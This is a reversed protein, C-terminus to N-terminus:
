QMQGSLRYLWATATNLDTIAQIKKLDYDILQQRVRLLDSLQSVAGSYSRIMIDLSRQALQGQNQYLGARRRADQYLQWAEYFESELNNATSEYAQVSAAKLATAENQMSRYKKRWVPITVKVMPMIMDKGNMDAPLESMENANIVSYNLGVGVMPMGMRRNMEKRADLSLQEYKFMELSPNQELISDRIISPDVRLSDAYMTDPLAVPSLAPRNLLANFRAQFTRQQDKLLAISNELEGAEIQIRYLDALGTGGSGSMSGSQSMSGGQAMSGQAMSSSQGASGGSMGSSGSMGGSMGTNGSGGSSGTQTVGSGGSVSNGSGRYVSSGSTGTGGYVSSGAVSGSVGTVSSSFSGSKYGALTIREITKLIEINKQSIMVSQKLFYMQYWTRQVDYFVQLKADRFLEYNAKAMLSMEDKGNKLVGFWPFMQMISLDAVQKGMVLEMPTLFIGATFEPDQLAGVQPVKELSARYEEFRQLVVPNNKVAIELYNMLSDGQQQAYVPTMSVTIAIITILRKFLKM